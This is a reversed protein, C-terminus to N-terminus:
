KHPITSFHGVPSGVFGMLTKGVAGTYQLGLAYWFFWSNLRHIGTIIRRHLVCHGTIEWRNLIGCLHVSSAFPSRMLRGGGGTM